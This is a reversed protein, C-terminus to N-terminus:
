HEIRYIAEHQESTIKSLSNIIENLDEFGKTLMAIMDAQNRALTEHLELMEKQCELLKDQAMTKEHQLNIIMEQIRVKTELESILLRYKKGKFMKM